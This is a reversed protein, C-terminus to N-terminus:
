PRIHVLHCVRQPPCAAGDVGTGQSATSQWVGDADDHLDIEEQLTAADALARQRNGIDSWAILVGFQHRDGDANFVQADGDPLLAALQQKWLILDWRATQGPNCAKQRCDPLEDSGAAQFATLYPNQAPDATMAGPNLLMREKLDAAM